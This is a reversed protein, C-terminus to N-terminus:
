FFREFEESPNLMALTNGGFHRVEYQNEQLHDLCSKMDKASLHANEFVVVNPRTKSLEFIKIVEYDYGETDIQLLDIEDINYKGILTKPSITTVEERKIWDKESPMEIRYKSCLKKIKGNSFAKELNERQFSALGTAWRMDSFGISYLFQKGDRPGIAACLTKIGKNNKYIKKLLQEHVYAQPELLVGNWNDRKIFKHIPDHTIGDNAGIQIVTLANVKSFSYVNLFEALSDKKPKYIYKYYGIFLPNNNSSLNFRFRRAYEKIVSKLKRIM